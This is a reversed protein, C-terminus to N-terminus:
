RKPSLVVTQRAAAAIRVWTVAGFRDRGSAWGEGQSRQLADLSAFSPMAKGSANVAGATAAHIKLLYFRLAPRFSGSVAGTEVQVTDGQRQVSLSQSFYAGHEYDYTTGDDDYYDFQAACPPPSCTSM